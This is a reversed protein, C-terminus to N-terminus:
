LLGARWVPCFRNRGFFARLYYYCIIGQILLPIEYYLINFNLQRYKDPIILAVFDRSDIQKLLRLPQTM